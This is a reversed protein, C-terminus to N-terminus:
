KVTEEVLREPFAPDLIDGSIAIAKGGAANIDAAVQEAKAPPPAARSYIRLLGFLGYLIYIQMGADIDTVTVMAGERAFIEACSKGIGQSFFWCSDILAPPAREHAAGNGLALLLLLKM